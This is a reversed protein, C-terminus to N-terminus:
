YIVDASKTYVFPAKQPVFVEYLRMIKPSTKEMMWQLSLDNVENKTKSSKQKPNLKSDSIMLSLRITRLKDMIHSLSEKMGMSRAEREVLKGMILALMCIFVHVRIKQDTWHFQPRVSFHEPDKMQKFANELDSQSHCADIIEMTGWEHRNTMLARRGFVEEKLYTMKQDNITWSLRSSGEKNQDYNVDLVQKIFSGKLIKNIQLTIAKETRPGSCPKSLRNKWAELKAYVTHLSQELGRLQGERLKESVFMIVTREQKWIEKKTRYFQVGKLSGESFTDFDKISVDMLNSPNRILSIPAIFGLNSEDMVEQNKVSNNGKDYVITIKSCDDFLAELRKRTATLTAAFRSVDPQNGEYVTSLLPIQGQRSMLVALNFQRLDYRKQKNHGRKPLKPRDNNSAIYTFFNTTDYLLTGLNLDLQKILKESLEEEIAELECESVRDMQEWFFQSTMKEMNIDPFLKGLSTETAWESFGKKSKPHCARNIASLILTKGISINNRGVGVHKDILSAIDLRDSIAKLSAVDGHQYSKVSAISGEKLLDLIKEVSGLYAIPVARPKGNIRRSEVIRWYTKGRRKAPQLSAM